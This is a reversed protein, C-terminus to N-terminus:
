RLGQVFKTLTREYEPWAAVDNHGCGPALCLTARSGFAAQLRRAHDVDVLSDTSGHLLLVPCRVDPALALNDYRDRLLLRVPLFPYTEAAADSLSTFASQLVLGRVPHRAALPVAMGGGISVGHVIVRSAPIGRLELWQLAAEADLQWGAENPSGESWGYGRPDLLLGGAGMREYPRLADRWGVINGANGHAFLVVPARDTPPRVFLATIRVGDSSRFSVFEMKGSSDPAPPGALPEPFYILRRQFIWAALVVVGYLVATIWLLKQLM